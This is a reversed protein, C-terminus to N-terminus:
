LSVFIHENEHEAGTKKGEFSQWQTDPVKIYCGYYYIAEDSTGPSSYLPKDWLPFLDNKDVSLSTEESLEKVATALPADIDSDLMGAPFELSLSGNGTRRQRVMLYKQQHTDSNEVLPVIVSAHGRIFAYPLLTTEEPTKAYVKFMGFLLEGNSKQYTSIPVISAVQCGHDLLEKKWALVKPASEFTNM